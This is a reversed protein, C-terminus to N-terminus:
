ANKKMMLIKPNM